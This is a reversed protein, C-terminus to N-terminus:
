KIEVDWGNIYRQLLVYDKMNVKGDGNVDAAAPNIDVAWGNIYRQLLSLDKMNIKGDDSIDGPTHSVVTVYGNVIGFYVNEYEGNFVDDDSYSITIPYDGEAVKDKITFTLQAVIGDSDIDGHVSDGWSISFPTSDLPGFSTGAFDKAEANTLTLVKSDYQINLKM